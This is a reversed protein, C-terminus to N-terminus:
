APRSDTGTPVSVGAIRQAVGTIDRWLDARAVEYYLEGRTGGRRPLTSLVQADVLRGLVPRVMGNAIGTEAVIDTTRTVGGLANIALVVEVVKENGFVAASTRRTALLWDDM